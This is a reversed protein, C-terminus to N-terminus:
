VGRCCDASPDHSSSPTGSGTMWLMTLVAWISLVCMGMSKCAM